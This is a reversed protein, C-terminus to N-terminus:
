RTINRCGSDVSVYVLADNAVGHMERYGCSHFSSDVNRAVWKVHGKGVAGATVSASIWAFGNIRQNAIVAEPPQANMDYVSVVIDEANDNYIRITVPDDAVTVASALLMLSLGFITVAKNMTPIRGRLSIQRDPRRSFGNGHKYGLTPPVPQRDIEAPAAGTVFAIQGRRGFCFAGSSSQVGETASRIVTSIGAARRSM